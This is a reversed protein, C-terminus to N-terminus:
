FGTESWIQQQLLLSFYAYKGNKELKLINKDVVEIDDLTCEILLKGSANLLGKKGNILVFSITNEFDSAEDYIAPITM